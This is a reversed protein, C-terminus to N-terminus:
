NYFKDTQWNEPNNIIYNKIKFLEEQDLEIIKM